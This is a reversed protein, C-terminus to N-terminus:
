GNMNEFFMYTSPSTESAFYTKWYQLFTSTWLALIVVLSEKQLAVVDGDVVRFEVTLIQCPVRLVHAEDATMETTLLQETIGIVDNQLVAGEVSGAVPDELVACVDIGPYLARYGVDLVRDGSTDNGVVDTGHGIVLVGFTM